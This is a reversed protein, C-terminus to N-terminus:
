WFVVGQVTTAGGLLTFLNLSNTDELILASNPDATLGTDAVTIHLKSQPSGESIGVNGTNEVVLVNPTLISTGDDNLSNVRLAENNSSLAMVRLGSTESPNEFTIKPNVNDTILM